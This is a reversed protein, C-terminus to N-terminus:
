DLLWELLHLNPLWLVAMYAGMGLLCLGMSVVNRRLEQRALALLIASCVSWAWTAHIGAIFLGIVVGHVVGWSEPTPDQYGPLRGLQWAVRSVLVTMALLWAFPLLGLGRHLYGFWRAVSARTMM